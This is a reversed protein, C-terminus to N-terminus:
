AALDRRYAVPDCRQRMHEVGSGRGTPPFSDRVAQVEEELTLRGILGIEHADYAVHCADCGPVIRDPVVLWPERQPEFTVPHFEDRDRGIVHCAHLLYEPFEEGCFRCRGELEVKARAETWGRRPQGRRLGGPKSKLAREPNSRLRKAPDRELPKREKPLAGMMEGCTPCALDERSPQFPVRHVEGCARCFVQGM